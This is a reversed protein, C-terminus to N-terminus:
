RKETYKWIVNRSGVIFSQGGGGIATGQLALVAEADDAASDAYVLDGAGGYVYTIHHHRSGKSTGLCVFGADSGAVPMPMGRPRSLRNGWPAKLSRLANGNIDLFVLEEVGDSLVMLSPRAGGALSVVGFRDFVHPSTWHALPRGDASFVAMQNKGNTYNEAVVDARGDGDMDACDFHLPRGAATIQRLSVGDLSRVDLSAEGPSVIEVRGDGDLDAAIPEQYSGGPSTWAVGGSEDFLVTQHANPLNGLFRLKGNANGTVARVAWPGEASRFPTFRKEKGELGLLRIGDSAVALIEDTGDHDFDGQRLDSVLNMNPGRFLVTKEYKVKEVLVGDPYSVPAYCAAVCVMAATALVAFGIVHSQRM